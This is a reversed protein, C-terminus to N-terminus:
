SLLAGVGTAVIAWTPREWDVEQESVDAAFSPDNRTLIYKAELRGCASFDWCTGGFQSEIPSNWNQGNVSQWDFSDALASQSSLWAGMTLFVTTSFTGYFFSMCRRM